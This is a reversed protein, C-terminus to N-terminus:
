RRKEKKKAAKVKPDLRYPVSRTLLPELASLLTGDDQSGRATLVLAARLAFYADKGSCYLQSIPYQLFGLLEM